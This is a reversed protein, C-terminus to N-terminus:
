LCGNISTSSSRHQVRPWQQECAYLRLPGVIREGHTANTYRTWNRLPSVVACPGYIVIANYVAHVHTTTYLCSTSTYRTVLKGWDRLLRAHVLALSRGCALGIIIMPRTYVDASSRARTNTRAHFRPLVFSFRLVYKSSRAVLSISFSVSLRFFLLSPVDINMSGFLGNSRSSAEPTYVGGISKHDAWYKILCQNRAATYVLLAAHM